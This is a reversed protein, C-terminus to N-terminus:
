VSVEIESREIRPPIFDTSHKKFQYSVTSVKEIDKTLKEFEEQKRM